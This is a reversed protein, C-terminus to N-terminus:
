HHSGMHLHSYFFTDNVRLIGTMCVLHIHTIVCGHFLYIWYLILKHTHTRSHKRFYVLYSSTSYPMRIFSCAIEVLSVAAYARHIYKFASLSLLECKCLRKLYVNIVSKVYLAFWFLYKPMFNQRFHTRILNILTHKTSTDNTKIKYLFNRSFFIFTRCLYRVDAFYLVALFFQCSCVCVFYM